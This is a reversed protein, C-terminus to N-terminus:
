KNVKRKTVAKAKKTPAKELGKDIDKKGAAMWTCWPDTDNKVSTGKTTETAEGVPRPHPLAGYTLIRRDPYKTALRGAAKKVIPDAAYQGVLVFEPELTKRAKGDLGAVIPKGDESYEGTALYIAKEGTDLVVDGKRIATMGEDTYGVELGLRRVPAAEAILRDAADVISKIVAESKELEDVINNIIDM